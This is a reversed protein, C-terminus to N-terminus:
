ISYNTYYTYNSLQELRLGNGESSSNRRRIARKKQRRVDAAAIKLQGLRKLAIYRTVAV